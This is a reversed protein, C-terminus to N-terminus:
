KDLAERLPTGLNGSPFETGLLLSLTSAIDATAVRRTYRGAKVNRGRIIIPVHSDYDFASGHSTGTGTGWLVGPAEVIMLDGGLVPHFGNTLRTMWAWAPLQGKLIQTRTFAAYVGEQKTAAEAAVKEVEEMSVNKAKATERNIYFNQEYLGTGLVWHGAGFKEVLAANITKSLTEPIRATPNKYVEASEEPIPLVGHDGTLVVTVNDMGIKGDLYNFFDSLLRDTRITIDMVEPSNPGFRHGVYDNTSLNVVLIDSVDRQGLKEADVAKKVTDFVFENGFHSTILGSFYGRDPKGGPAGLPWSFVKGNDSPKESPSRRSVGYADAALMPEWRTGFAKDVARSKNLDEVWAPLKGSPAYWSSTVWNGTSQDFWIVTDAAHGAMLISARDKFAVGVVKSRGNTAMKLEDGVTTVLLPRPSMKGGAGGVSEVQSDDTVYRGRGAKRDFWGNGVIGNLAPESGTMLTAHGPGTATPLHNHHADMYWAGTETLFRFGGLKRGSKAPLLYPTFRNAYDGRFQDVSILVVLKPPANGVRSQAAGAAPLASVAALLILPARRRM